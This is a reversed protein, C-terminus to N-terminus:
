CPVPVVATCGANVGTGAAVVGATAAVGAKTDSGAVGATADVGAGTANSVGAAVVVPVVLPALRPPWPCNPNPLPSCVM